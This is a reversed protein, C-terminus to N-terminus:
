WINLLRIEMYFNNLQNIEVNLLRILLNFEM